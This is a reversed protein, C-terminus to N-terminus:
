RPPNIAFCDDSTSAYELLMDLECAIRQEWQKQKTLNQGHVTEEDYRLSMKEKESIYNEICDTYISINLESEDRLEKIKKRIKRGYLEAMDFHLQEHSLLTISSTDKTCSLNKLFYVSVKITPIGEEWKGSYTIGIHSLTSIDSPYGSM